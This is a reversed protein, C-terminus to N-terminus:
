GDSRGRIRNTLARAKEIARRKAEILSQERTSVDITVVGEGPTARPAPHDEHFAPVPDEFTPISALQTARREDAPMSAPLKELVVRFEITGWVSPHFAGIRYDILGLAVLRAYIDLFSGPTFVQCHGDVYEGTQQAKLCLEYAWEDPDLDTRWTGRYDATGAWLAAADVEIIRSHFDYIQRFGPASLGRLHADVLDAMTTLDRNVDFCLRKDPIALCLRGGEALVSGVERLWGIMDPAHEIVHSAFVWDFPAAEGVVDLLPAGGSWVFDVDVIEDLHDAMFADTAYKQRLDDTSAHDVYRVQYRSRPFRPTYLPGIELGPAAPDIDALWEEQVWEDGECTAAATHEALGAEFALQSAEIEGGEITPHPAPETM